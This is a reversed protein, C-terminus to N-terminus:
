CSTLAAQMINGALNLNITDLENYLELAQELQGILVEPTDESPLIIEYSGPELLKKREGTIRYIIRDRLFVILDSFLGEAAVREKLKLRSQSIFKEMLSRDSFCYEDPAPCYLKRCRSIITPLISDLRSTLLIILSHAPPEELTKLFANAAEEGMTHANNIILVKRETNVTKLSLFRQAQRIHEIKISLPEDVIMIDASVDRKLDRCAPCNGCFTDSERCNVVRAVTRSIELLDKGTFLYSFSICDKKKLFSFYDIIKQHAEM